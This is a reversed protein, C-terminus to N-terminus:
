CRDLFRQKYLSTQDDLSSVGLREAADATRCVKVPTNNPLDLEDTNTWSGKNRSEESLCALRNSQLDFPAARASLFSIKQPLLVCIQRLPLGCPRGRM